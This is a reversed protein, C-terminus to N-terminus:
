LGGRAMRADVNVRWDELAEFRRSGEELRSDISEVHKAIGDVKDVLSSGGNRQLESLAPLLDVLKNVKAEREARERAAVARERMWEIAGDRLPKVLFRWIAGIAAALAGLRVLALEFFPLWTLFEPVGEMRGVGVASVHLQVIDM